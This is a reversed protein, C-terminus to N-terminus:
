FFDLFSIKDGDIYEIVIKKLKKKLNYSYLKPINFYNKKGFYKYGLIENKLYETNQDSFIKEVFIKNKKKCIIIENKDNIIKKIIKM